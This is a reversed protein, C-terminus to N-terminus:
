TGQRYIPQERRTRLSYALQLSLPSSLLFCASARLQSISLNCYELLSANIFLSVKDHHLRIFWAFKMLNICLFTAHHPFTLPTPRYQGTDGSNKNNEWQGDEGDRVIMDALKGKKPPSLWFHDKLTARHGLASLTRDIKIENFSNNFFYIHAWLSQSKISWM